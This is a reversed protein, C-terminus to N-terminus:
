KNFPYNMREDQEREGSVIYRLIRLGNVTIVALVVAIVFLLTSTVTDM